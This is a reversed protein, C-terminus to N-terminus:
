SRRSTSECVWRPSRWRPRTPALGVAAFAMATTDASKSTVLGLRRGHRRLVDLMEEVGDFGRILEDHVRHNYERYVDYLEQAHDPALQVMQSMLPQGVYRMIQADPLEEGLVVRTAYRFSETILAVTDVVTGDLDFLVPDFGTV